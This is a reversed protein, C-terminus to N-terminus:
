TVSAIVRHPRDIGNREPLAFILCDRTRWTAAAVLVNGFLRVPWNNDLHDWWAIRPDGDGVSTNM